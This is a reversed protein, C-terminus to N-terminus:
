NINKENHEELLRFINKASRKRRISAALVTLPNSYTQLLLKSMTKCTGSQAKTASTEQKKILKLITREVINSSPQRDDKSLANSLFDRSDKTIDRGTSKRQLLFAYAIDASHKKLPSTIGTKSLSLEHQRYYYLPEPLNAARHLELARLFWDVDESGIRNFFERYYGVTQLINRRFMISSGCFLSTRGLSLARQLSKHSTPYRTLTIIGSNYVKTCFTGCLDIKKQQTLFSIQKELRYQDSWDDADQFTILRGRCQKLLKNTSKLYGLNKNNRSLLIRHDSYSQVIEWTNDSSLDDIILLEFNSFSQSLISDIAKKIYRECNYAAMVISVYPTSKDANM